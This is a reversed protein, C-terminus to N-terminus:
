RRSGRARDGNAPLREAFYTALRERLALRARHLRVKVLSPSIGLVEATDATSLEEIDRLVFVVRFTEPLRGIADDLAARAESDMLIEEPTFDWNVLTKPLPLSEDDAANGDEEPLPLESHACLRDMSANYAVRYLWTGISSRGEFRDLHTLVALFTQQLIDEAESPDHLLGLALRYVRDAHTDFIVTLAAPDGARYCDVVVSDNAM